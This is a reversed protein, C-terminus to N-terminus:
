WQLVAKNNECVVVKPPLQMMCDSILGHKQNYLDSQENYNKVKELFTQEISVHYPLYSLPGGCPKMGVGTTKWQSADTCRVSTSLRAIELRLRGMTSDDTARATRATIKLTEKAQPVNEEQQCAVWFGSILALCAWLRMTKM